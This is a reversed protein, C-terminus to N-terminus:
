KVLVRSFIKQELQDRIESTVIIITGIVGKRSSTELEWKYAAVVTVTEFGGMLLSVRSGKMAFVYDAMSNLCQRNKTAVTRKVNETAM